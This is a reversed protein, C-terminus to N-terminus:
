PSREAARAVVVRNRGSEKATYLAEDAAAVLGAASEDPGPRRTAVGISVSVLHGADSAPHPIELERVARLLLQALAEAEGETTLPLVVAFEEGGYRAVLDGARRCTSALADAVRLLCRDGEQHGFRDNFAKFHDIDVMTLSLPAAMRRCRAWENELTEDFLRRNAVGTLADQAAIEELLRNSSTLEANTEELSARAAELEATRELVKQELSARLDQEARERQRQFSNIRHAVAFALLVLEAASAVQASHLTLPTPALVGNYSLVYLAVGLMLPGSALLFIRALASGAIALRIATVGVLSVLLLAVPGLTFAAFGQLGLVFAVALGATVWQIGLLVRDTRPAETRTDLFSRVFSTGWFASSAPLLFGAWRQVGPAGPWVYEFLFGSELLWTLGFSSAYLVYILYSWYRTSAFLFLTYAVVALVVGAYLGQLTNNRARRALYDEQTAVEFALFNRSDTDPGEVTLRVYTVSGGTSTGALPVVPEHSPLPREDFPTFFGIRANTVQGTEECFTWAEVLQWTNSFVLVLNSDSPSATVRLWYEDRSSSFSREEQWRPEPLARVEDLGLARGEDSASSRLWRETITAGGVTSPGTSAAHSASAM